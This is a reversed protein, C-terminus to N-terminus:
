EPRIRRARTARFHLVVRPNSATSAALYNIADIPWCQVYETGSLSNTIKDTHNSKSPQRPLNSSPRNTLSNGFPNLTSGGRSSLISRGDFLGAFPADTSYGSGRTGKPKNGKIERQKEPWREDRYFDRGRTARSDEPRRGSRRGASEM